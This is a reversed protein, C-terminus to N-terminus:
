ISEKESIMTVVLAHYIDGTVNKTFIDASNEKTRVFVLKLIDDQIYERVFHARIDIHKTRQGIMRNMGLFMAGTNDVNIVIPLKVKIGMSDLVHKAFIIEKAVESLAMYEAETSSLTVSRQAKSSWSIAVGQFYIVWGSVSVRTKPDGGFESDSM